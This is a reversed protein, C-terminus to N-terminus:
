STYTIEFEFAYQGFTVEDRLTRTRIDRVGNMELVRRAGVPYFRTVNGRMEPLADHCALVARGPQNVLISFRGPSYVKGYMTPLKSMVTTASMLGVIFKYVTTLTTSGAERVNRMDFEEVSEGTLPEVRKYVEALFRDWVKM